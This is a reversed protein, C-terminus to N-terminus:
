ALKKMGKLYRLLVSLLGKMPNKAKLKLYDFLYSFTEEDPLGTYVTVMAAKPEQKFLPDPRM